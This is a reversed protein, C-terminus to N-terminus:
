CFCVLNDELSPSPEVPGEGNTNTNLVDNQPQSPASGKKKKSPVAENDAEAIYRKPPKSRILSFSFFFLFFMLVNHLSIMILFFFFFVNSHFTHDFVYNETCIWLLHTELQTEM